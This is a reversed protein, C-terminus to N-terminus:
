KGLTLQPQQEQIAGGAGRSVACCRSSCTPALLATNGTTDYPPSVEVLDCRDPQPRSVGRIVEMGQSAMLGAPEPTGTGPAVSPDLGDIDFSLYVPRESGIQERV